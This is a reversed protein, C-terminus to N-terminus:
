SGACRSRFRDGTMPPEVAAEGPAQGEGLRRENRNAAHVQPQTGAEAFGALPTDVSETAGPGTGGGPRLGDALAHSGYRSTISVASPWPRLAMAM